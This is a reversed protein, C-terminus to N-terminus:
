SVTDATENATSHIDAASTNALTAAKFIESVAMYIDIDTMNTLTTATCGVIIAMHIGAAM